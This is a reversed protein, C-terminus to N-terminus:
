MHRDPAIGGRVFDEVSTLPVGFARSTETMDMCTDFTELAAM